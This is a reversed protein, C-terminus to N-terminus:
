LGLLEGFMAGVNYKLKREDWKAIFERWMSEATEESVIKSHVSDINPSLHLFDSFIKRLGDEEYEFPVEISERLDEISINNKKADNAFWRIIVVLTSYVLEKM